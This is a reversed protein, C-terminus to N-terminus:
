GALLQVGCAAVHSRSQLLDLVNQPGANPLLLGNDFSNGIGNAAAVGTVVFALWAGVVACRHQASWAVGACPNADPGSTRRPHEQLM